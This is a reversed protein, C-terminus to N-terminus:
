LKLEWTQGVVEVGFHSHPKEEILKFGRSRYIHQAVRLEAQTWLRLKRYAAQRAFAICEEVLRRAVGLGRAEPEVLLMRLLAIRPSRKVLFISGIPHGAREAIWCREREADFNKLFRICVEGVLAEFLPGWGYERAYLVGHRHIVWGIDGPQHTRISFPPSTDPQGGLLNEIDKMSEVLRERGPPTLRDLLAAVQRDSSRDLQQFAKRGRASLKLQVQRKDAASPKRGVLGRAAFSDLLRSLYGADLGLDRVIESATATERSGLEYIVRAEALSFDSNLYSKRLVGIQGTYFRNFRRVAATSM